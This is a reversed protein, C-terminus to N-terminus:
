SDLLMQTMQVPISVMEVAEVSQQTKAHIITQVHLRREGYVMQVYKLSVLVVQTMQVDQQEMRVPIVATQLVLAPIIIQVHM